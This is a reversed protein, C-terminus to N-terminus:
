PREVEEPEPDHHETPQGDLEAALFHAVRITAAAFLERQGTTEIASIRAATYGPKAHGRIRVHTANERTAFLLPRPGDSNNSDPPTSHRLWGTVTYYNGQHRVLDGVEPTTDTTESM